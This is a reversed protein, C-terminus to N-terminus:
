SKGPPSQSLIRGLPSGYLEPFGYTYPTEPRFSGFHTGLIPTPIGGGGGQIKLNALQARPAVILPPTNGIKTILFRAYGIKRPPRVGEVRGFLIRNGSLRLLDSARRISCSSKWFM